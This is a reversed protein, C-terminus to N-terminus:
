NGSKDTLVTVAVVGHGARAGLVAYDRKV